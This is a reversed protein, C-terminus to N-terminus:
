YGDYPVDIFRFVWVRERPSCLLLLLSASHARSWWVCKHQARTQEQEQSLLPPPNPTFIFLASRLRRFAWDAGSRCGGFVRTGSAGGATVTRCGNRYLLGVNYLKRV